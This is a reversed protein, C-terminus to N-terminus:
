DESSAHPHGNAHPDARGERRRRMEVRLRIEAEVISLGEEVLRSRHRRIYVQTAVWDLMALALLAAILFVVGSWLQVFRTNVRGEVRAPM